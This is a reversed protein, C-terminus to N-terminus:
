STVLLHTSTTTHNISANWIKGWCIEAIWQRWWPTANVELALWVIWLVYITQTAKSTFVVEQCLCQIVSVHQPLIQFADTFWMVSANWIKGWCTEAIWQRLWPTTNVEFAVWVIWLVSITQTAKSTFLVEQHLCQIVSVHQPLIQFADTFWMVVEVCKNNVGYRNNIVCRINLFKGFNSEGHKM